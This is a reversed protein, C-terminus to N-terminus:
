LFYIEWNDMITKVIVRKKQQVLSANKNTKGSNVVGSLMAGEKCIM